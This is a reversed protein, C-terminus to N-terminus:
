SIIEGGFDTFTKQEMALTQTPQGYPSSSLSAWELGLKKIASSFNGNVVDDYAGRLSILFVAAKDQSGPSFDPLNLNPQIETKWTPSIIQYAGAADSNMQKNFTNTPFQSYDPNSPDTFYGGGVKMAYAGPDQSSEGQRIVRLFAQLNMQKQDGVITDIEANTFALANDSAKSMQYYKYIEYLGFAGVVALLIKTNSSV